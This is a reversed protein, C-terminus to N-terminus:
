NFDDSFVTSWGSPPGPVTAPAALLAPAAHGAPMAVAASAAPLASAGLAAAPAIVALAMIRAAFTRRRAPGAALQVHPSRGTMRPGGVGRCYIIPFNGILLPIYRREGPSDVAPRM